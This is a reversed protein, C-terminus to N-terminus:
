SIEWNQKQKPASDLTAHMNLVYEVVSSWGLGPKGSRISDYIRLDHIRLWLHHHYSGGKTLAYESNKGNKCANSWKTKIARHLSVSLIEM